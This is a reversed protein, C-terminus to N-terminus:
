AKEKSCGSKLMVIAVSVKMCVLKAMKIGLLIMDLKM